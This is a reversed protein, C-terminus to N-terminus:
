VGAINEKALLFKTKIYSSLFAKFIAERNNSQSYFIMMVWLLTKCIQCVYGEEEWIRWTLDVSFGIALGQNAWPCHFFVGIILFPNM